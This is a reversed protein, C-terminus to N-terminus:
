KSKNINKGKQLSFHLLKVNVQHIVADDGESIKTETDTWVSCRNQDGTSVLLKGRAIGLTEEVATDKVEETAGVVLALALVLFAKM